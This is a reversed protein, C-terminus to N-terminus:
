NCANDSVWESSGQEFTWDAECNELIWDLSSDGDVTWCLAKASILYYPPFDIPLDKFTEFSIIVAEQTTSSFTEESFSQSGFM